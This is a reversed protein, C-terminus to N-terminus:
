ARSQQQRPRRNKKPRLAGKAFNAKVHWAKGTLDDMVFRGSQCVKLVRQAEEVTKFHVFGFCRSTGDEERMIKVLTVSAYRECAARLDSETCCRPLKNVLLMESPLPEDEEPAATHSEESRGDSMGESTTAESACGHGHPQLQQATLGSTVFREEESKQQMTGEMQMRILQELTQKASTEFTFPKQDTESVQIDSNRFFGYSRPAEPPPFAKIFSSLDGKQGGRIISDM